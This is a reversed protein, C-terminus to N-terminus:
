FDLRTGDYSYIEKLKDFDDPHMVCYESGLLYVTGRAKYRTVTRRISFGRKNVPINIIEYYLSGVYESILVKRGAIISLMM